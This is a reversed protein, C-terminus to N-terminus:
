PLPRWLTPKCGDDTFDTNDHTIWRDPRFTLGWRGVHMRLPTTSYGSPAALLVYSGDKPATDIPQWGLPESLLRAVAEAQERTFSVGQVAAVPEVMWSTCAPHGCPCPIARYPGPDPSRAPKGPAPRM